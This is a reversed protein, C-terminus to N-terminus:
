SGPAPDADDVPPENAAEAILNEDIDPSVTKSPKTDSVGADAGSERCQACGSFLIREAEDILVDPFENRCGPCSITIRRSM